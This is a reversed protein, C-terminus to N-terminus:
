PMIYQMVYCWETLLLSEILMIGNLSTQKMIAQMHITWMFIIDSIEAASKILLHCEALDVRFLLVM